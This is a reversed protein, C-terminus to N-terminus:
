WLPRPRSTQTFLIHRKYSSERKDLRRPIEMRAVVSGDAIAKGHLLGDEWWCWAELGFLKYHEIGLGGRSDSSSFFCGMSVRIMGM